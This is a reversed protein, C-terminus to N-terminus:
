HNIPRQPQMEAHNQNPMGQDQRRKLEQKVKDKWEKDLRLLKDFKQQSICKLFEPRYKKRLNLQWEEWELEDKTQSTNYQQRLQRLEKSYQNFVPWFKQAEDPNLDLQKSIFAIKLSELQQGKEPQPQAHMKVLPAFGILFILILKKM